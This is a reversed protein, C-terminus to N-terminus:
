CEEGCACRGAGRWRLHLEAADVAPYSLFAHVVVALVEAVRAFLFVILVECGRLRSPFRLVSCRAYLGSLEVEWGCAQQVSCLWRAKRSRLSRWTLSRSALSVARSDVVLVRAVSLERRLSARWRAWVSFSIRRVM